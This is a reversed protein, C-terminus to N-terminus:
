IQVTIEKGYSEGCTYAKKFEGAEGLLIPVVVIEDGGGIGAPIVVDGTEGVGISKELRKADLISGSDKKRVEVGYLPVNGKNEIDIDGDSLFAEALFDVRECSNSIPEDFKETQEGIFTRAWLFIIIAIILAIAILLITAIVPSLGRKRKLM